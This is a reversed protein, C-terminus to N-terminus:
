YRTEELKSKGDADIRVTIWRDYEDDRLPAVECACLAGAIAAVTNSHGIVLVTGDMHSARLETAFDAAPMGAAYTRVDLRHAAATPAATQQTRRYGTAYVAKVQVDALREALRQARAHGSESLSPDKPDDAGKEAHRVIVFVAGAERMTSRTACGCLLTGLAAAAIAGRISVIKM